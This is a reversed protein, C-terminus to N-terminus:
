MVAIMQCGGDEWADVFDDLPIMAGCGDPHGSDNLIVMPNEPDSYDIGIVQVAHDAADDPTYLAGDEEYWIEDSDLSVIVKGDNALCEAIDDIDNNFTMESNIGFYSLMKDMDCVTTGSEESFWGNTEAIDAFAEIDIEEGTIEEIIFLQSYLACRNTAGQNEWHEMAEEPDGIVHEPDSESPDYNDLVIMGEQYEYDTDEIPELEIEGTQADYEYVEIADVIGDAGEDISVVYTDDIGDGDSDVITGETYLDAVGDGDTDLTAAETDYFGDFDTDALMYDSDVIGDHDLDYEEYIVDYDGSDDSDIMHRYGDTIGDGDVDIEEVTDDDNYSMNQPESDSDDSYEMDDSYDTDESYDTDGSSFDINIDIDDIMGNGDNDYAVIMGDTYGDQDIDLEVAATDMYGDGNTDAETYVTDVYGDDNLDYEEYITDSYGDGDTDILLQVGDAIGDGDIDVENAFTDNVGDGDTDFNFGNFDFM